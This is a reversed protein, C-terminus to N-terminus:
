FYKEPSGTQNIKSSEVWHKIEEYSSMCVYITWLGTYGDNGKQEKIKDKYICM